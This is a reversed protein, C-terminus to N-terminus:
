SVACCSFSLTKHTCDCSFISRLNVVLVPASTRGDRERVAPGQIGVHPVPCISKECLVAETYTACSRRPWPRDLWADDAIVHVAIGVIQRCHDFGEIELIDRQDAVRGSTSFDRAVDAAVSGASDGPGDQYSCHWRKNQLSGSIGLAQRISSKSPM